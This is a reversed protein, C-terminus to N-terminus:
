LIGISLKQVASLERHVERTPTSSAIETTVTDLCDKRSADPASATSHAAAHPPLPDDADLPEGVSGDGVGDFVHDIEPLTTSVADCLPTELTDTFGDHFMGATDLSALPAYESLEVPFGGGLGFLTVNDAAPNTLRSCHIVM